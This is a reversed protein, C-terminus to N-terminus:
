NTDIASRDQPAIGTRAPPFLDPNPELTQEGILVEDPLIAAVVGWLAALSPVSTAGGTRGFNLSRAHPRQKASEASAWLKRRRKQPRTLASAACM